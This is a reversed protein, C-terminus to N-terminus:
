WQEANFFTTNNPSCYFDDWDSDSDSCETDDNELKEGARRNFLKNQLGSPVADQPMSEEKVAETEKPAQISLPKMRNSRIGSQMSVGGFLANVAQANTDKGLVQLRDFYEGNRMWATVFCVGPFAVDDQDCLASEIATVRLQTSWCRQGDDLEQVRYTPHMFPGVSENERFIANALQANTSFVTHTFGSQLGIQYTYYGEEDPAVHLRHVYDIADCRLAVKLFDNAYERTGSKDFFDDDVQSPFYDNSIVLPTFRVAVRVADMSIDFMRVYEDDNMHSWVYQKGTDPNTWVILADWCNANFVCGSSKAVAAIGPSNTQGSTGTTGKM